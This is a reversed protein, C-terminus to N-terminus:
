YYIMTGTRKPRGDDDLEANGGVKQIEQGAECREVQSIQDGFGQM